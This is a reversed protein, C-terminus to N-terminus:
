SSSGIPRYDVGIGFARPGVVALAAPTRLLEPARIAIVKIRQGYRVGESGINRLTDADMLSIIDPTTAIIEGDRRAILFENQFDISLESGAPVTTARVTGFSFGGRTEHTCGIIKGEFLMRAVLGPHSSLAEELVQVPSEHQARAMRLAAGIRRALTTTGLVACNRVDKGEMVYDVAFCKHGAAASVARVLQEIRRNSDSEVCVVDGQDTAVMTPSASRGYISYSIQDSQPFARGMGDADVVPVGLLSGAIFATLGNGGGIEAAMVADIKRGLRRSMADLASLVEREAFLKEVAIIPAGVFGVNVVLAHESLESADIVRVPGREILSSRLVLGLAHTDGGGGSGLLACGDALEAVDAANVSGSPM